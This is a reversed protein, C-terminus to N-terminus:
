SVNKGGPTEFHKTERSPSITLIRNLSADSFRAHLSLPNNRAPAHLMKKLDTAFHQM